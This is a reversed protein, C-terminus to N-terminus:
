SSSCAGTRAALERVGELVGPEPFLNRTPELVIAALAATDVAQAGDSALLGLVLRGAFVIAVGGGRAPRRAGM